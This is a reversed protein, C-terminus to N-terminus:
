KNKTKKCLHALYYKCIVGIAVFGISCKIQRYSQPQLLQCDRQSISRIPVYVFSFPWLNNWLYTWQQKNFFYNVKTHTHKCFSLVIKIKWRTFKDIASAITEVNFVASLKTYISFEFQGNPFNNQLIDCNTALVLM